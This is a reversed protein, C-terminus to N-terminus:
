LGTNMELLVTQYKTETLIQEEISPEQVVEEVTSDDVILTRVIHSVTKGDRTYRTVLYGDEIIEDLFDVM